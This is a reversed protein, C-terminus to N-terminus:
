TGVRKVLAGNIYDKFSVAAFEHPNKYKRDYQALIDGVTKKLIFHKHYFIHAFFISNHFKPNGSPAVYYRCGTIKIFDKSFRKDGSLCATCVIINNRLKKKLEILDNNTVNGDPFWLGWFKGGKKGDVVSGHTTIHIIKYPSCALLSLFQKKTRVEVYQNEVKMLDLMYSLFIGESGPDRNDLCELILVGSIPM